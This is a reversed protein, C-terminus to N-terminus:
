KATVLALTDRAIMLGENTCVMLVKVRSDAASLAIIDAGRQKNKEPDLKIGLFEMNECVALRVEGDNEGIGGTFVLCDLGGMAAAYAGVYKKIQYKLMDTALKARENGQVAASTVDRMDSSVGSVGLL